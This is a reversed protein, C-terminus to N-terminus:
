GLARYTKQVINVTNDIHVVHAHMSAVNSTTNNCPFPAPEHLHIILTSCRWKTPSSSCSNDSATHNTSNRRRLANVVSTTHNYAPSYIHIQSRTEESDHLWSERYRQFIIPSMHTRLQHKLCKDRFNRERDMVELTNMWPIVDLAGTSAM